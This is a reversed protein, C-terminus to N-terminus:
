RTLIMKIYKQRSGDIKALYILEKDLFNYDIRDDDSSQDPKVCLVIGTQGISGRERGASPFYDWYLRNVEAVVLRKRQLSKMPEFDFEYKRNSHESTVFGSVRSNVYSAKVFCQFGGINIASDIQEKYVLMMSM